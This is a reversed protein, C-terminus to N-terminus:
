MSPPPRLCSDCSKIASARGTDDPCDHYATIVESPCLHWSIYSSQPESIVRALASHLPVRLGNSCGIHSLCIDGLLLATNTCHKATHHSSVDASCSRVFLQRLRVESTGILTIARADQQNASGSYYFGNNLELRM